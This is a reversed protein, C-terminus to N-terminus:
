KNSNFLIEYLIFYVITIIFIIGKLIFTTKGWKDIESSGTYWIKWGNIVNICADYLTWGWNLCLLGILIMLKWDPYSFYIVLAAISGRVFMGLEHWIKSLNKPHANLAWKLVVGERIAILLLIIFSILTIIYM